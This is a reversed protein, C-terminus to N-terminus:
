SLLMVSMDLNNGDLVDGIITKGFVLALNHVNSSQAM